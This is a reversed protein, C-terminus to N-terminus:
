RYFTVEEAKAVKESVRQTFSFGRTQLEQTFSGRRRILQSEFGQGDNLAWSM